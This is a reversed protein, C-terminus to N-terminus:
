RLIYNQIENTLREVEDPPLTEIGLEKAEYILADILRAMQASDYTSSGRYCRIKDCGPLKCGAQIEAIWGTGNHEFNEVFEKSNESQVAIDYFVGVNRIQERYVEEKTIGIKAAIKDALVWMYSNADLSRRARKAKVEIDCPTKNGNYDLWRKITSPSTELCLCPKDDVVKFFASRVNM